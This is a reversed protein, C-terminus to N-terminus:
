RPLPRVEPVAQPAIAPVAEIAELKTARYSFMLWPLTLPVVGAAGSIPLTGRSTLVLGEKDRTLTTVTPGVHPLISALSPLLAADLNVGERQLEGCLINLGIQVIPYVVRLTEAMDQYHVVLPQGKLQEAVAPIDAISGADSKRSLFARVNQPQLALILHKDTVCWAIAFPVEAGIPQLFNITQGAFQQQRVEVGRRRRHGNPQEAVNAQRSLALLKETVNDLKAKNKVPVVATLGTLVLGGEAPSNYIAWTDGLSQFLDESLKFGLLMEMHALGQSMEQGARADTKVVINQVSKFTRDLDFRMAAALSSSKPLATLDAATLPQPGFVDLLGTPEGDLQVWTKNVFGQGDFGSISAVAQANSLGLVSLLAGGERGMLPNVLELIQKTNFYHIVSVREAPLKARLKTLWAPPQANRREVIKDAVGDGIGVILYKERIGWEITPANPPMPLKHWQDDPVKDGGAPLMAMLTNLAKAAEDAKDGLNVVMGGRPQPGNPGPVIKALAMATPRHLIITVLKTAEVAATKGREDGRANQAIAESIRKTLESRFYRVEPNALLQEAKNGSKADPEATGSWNLYWLCEEPAVQQLVPDEPLPPLGLPVTFGGGFLLLFLMQWGAFVSVAM